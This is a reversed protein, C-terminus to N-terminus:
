RRYPPRNTIAGMNQIGKVDDTSGFLFLLSLADADPTLTRELAGDGHTSPTKSPARPHPALLPAHAYGPMKYALISNVSYLKRFISMESVM